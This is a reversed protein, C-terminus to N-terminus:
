RSTNQPPAIATRQEAAHKWTGNQKVWVRTFRLAGPSWGKIDTFKLTGQVIGTDGYTQLRDYAVVMSKIPEQAPAGSRQPAAGSGRGTGARGVAFYDATRMAQLAKADNALGAKVLRGEAAMLEAAGAGEPTASKAQLEKVSSLNANPGAEKSILTGQFAAIKWTSGDKVWVRLFRVGQGMGEFHQIGTAISGNGYARVTADSISHKPDGPLALIWKLDIPGGGRNFGAFDSTYFREFGKGARIANVHEDELRKIEDGQALCLSAALITTGVVTLAHRM